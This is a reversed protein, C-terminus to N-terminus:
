SVRTDGGARLGYDRWSEKRVAILATAAGLSTLITWLGINGAGALRLLFFVGWFVLGLISIDIFASNRTANIRNTTPTETLQTISM